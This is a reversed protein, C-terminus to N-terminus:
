ALSHETRIRLVPLGDSDDWSVNEFLTRKMVETRAATHARAVRNRRFDVRREAKNTEKM